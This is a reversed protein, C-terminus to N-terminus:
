ATFALEASAMRFSSASARRPSRCQKRRRVPAPAPRRAPPRPAPPRKRRPCSPPPSRGPASAPMRSNLTSLSASSSSSAARARLSFVCPASQAARSDRRRQRSADTCRSRGARACTRCRYEGPAARDVLARRAVAPKLRVADAHVDTRLNARRLRKARGHLPHGLQHPWNRRSPMTSFASRHRRRAPCRNDHAATEVRRGLHALVGRGNLLASPPKSPRSSSSGPRNRTACAPASTARTSYTFRFPLFVKTIVSAAM